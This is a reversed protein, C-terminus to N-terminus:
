VMKWGQYMKGQFHAQIREDNDRSSIFNGSVDCVMIQKAKPAEEISTKVQALL